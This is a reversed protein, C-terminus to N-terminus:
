WFSVNYATGAVTPLVQDIFGDSNVPGTQLSFSGTHPNTTSVSTFSTDGSNIWPPLSGTEFDGNVVICGGPTGTPTSSITTASPTSIWMLATATRRSGAGCTALPPRTSARSSISPAVM